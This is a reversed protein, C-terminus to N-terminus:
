EEEEGEFDQDPLDEEKYNKFRKEYATVEKDYRVKDQEALKHYKDQEKKSLKDWSSKIFSLYNTKPDKAKAKDFKAKLDSKISEDSMFLANASLPRKPKMDQYLKGEAKAKEYAEKREKNFREKDKDALATYKAKEKETIKGWRKGIEKSIEPMSLNPQDKRVEARVDNGFLIFASMPRKLHGDFAEKRKMRARRRSLSSISDNCVCGWASELPFLEDIDIDLGLDTIRTELYDKLPLFIKSYTQLGSQPNKRFDRTLSM